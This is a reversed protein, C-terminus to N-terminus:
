LPTAQALLVSNVQSLEYTEGGVLLQPRGDVVQVAKVMGQVTKGDQTQIEVQRGLLGHARAFEQDTRMQSLDAMMGRSQELSNFQAMQAIFETDKQPSLPDQTTLQAVLLKLFDEQGLAQKPIRDAGAPTPTTQNSVSTTPSIAMYLKILGLKGM